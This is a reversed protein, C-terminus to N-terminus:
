TNGGQSRYLNLVLFVLMPFFIAYMAPSVFSIDTFKHADALVPLLVIIGILSLVTRKSKGILEGMLVFSPILLMAMKLYNIVSGTETIASMVMTLVIFAFYVILYLWGLVKM